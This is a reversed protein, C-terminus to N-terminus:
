GGAILTTIVTGDDEVQLSYVSKDPSSLLIQDTTKDKYLVTDLNQSIARVLNQVYARTTPDMNVPPPPLKM